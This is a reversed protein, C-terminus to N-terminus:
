AWALPDRERRSAWVTLQPFAQGLQAALAELGFRESAYHSVLLLGLGRAEAELATHFRAEGTVFAQCGAQEAAALLEGASGCGVAVREIPADLRGVVQVQELSLFRKAAAALSGLTGGSSLRGVRGTGLTPIAPSPTLPAIGRLGLGEALRQNIGAASSDFATHASYVGVGAEILALLLRGDPADATLRNTPRFPLPHHTVILEAREAIAEAASDGTITLCTMVRQVTRSRDGVLLGVNDWTEALGTPALQELHAAVDDITPM